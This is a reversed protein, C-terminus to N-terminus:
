RLLNEVAAAGLGVKEYHDNEIPKSDRWFERGAEPDPTVM